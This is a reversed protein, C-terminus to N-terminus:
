EMNKQANAPIWLLADAQCVIQIIGDKILPGVTDEVGKMQEVYFAFNPDGLMYALRVPRHEPLHEVLYKGQNQGIDRFPVTVHYKVPGKGVDQAFTVVPVGEADAKALMGGSQTPDVSILIIGAAGNALAADVQAVQESVQDSANLVELKVNPAYKAFDATMNPVEFKKYRSIKSSPILLYVTGKVDKFDVDFDARAQPAFLALASCAALGALLQTIKSM